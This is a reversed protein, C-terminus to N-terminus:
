GHWASRAKEPTPQVQTAIRCVEPVDFAGRAALEQRLSPGNLYEMVLYPGVGPEVGFDLVSVIYPHHLMACMRAEAMFRRRRTRADGSRTRIVKITVIDGLRTRRARYVEGMGGVGILAEIKYRRDVIDGPQLQRM